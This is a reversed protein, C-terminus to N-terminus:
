RWQKFVSEQNMCSSRCPFANITKGFCLYWTLLNSNLTKWVNKVIYKKLGKKGRRNVSHYVRNKKKQPAASCREWLVIVVSNRARRSTVRNSKENGTTTTATISTLQQLDNDRRTTLMITTRDPVDLWLPSTGRTCRRTRDRSRWRVAFNWRRRSKIKPYVPQHYWEVSGVISQFVGKHNYVAAVFKGRSSSM